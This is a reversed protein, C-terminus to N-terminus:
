LQHGSRDASDLIPGTTRAEGVKLPVRRRVPDRAWRRGSKPNNTLLAPNERAVARWCKRAAVGFDRRTRFGLRITPTSRTSVRIRARMPGFSTSWGSAGCRRGSYLLIGLGSAQSRRWRRRLQPGCDCQASSRTGPLVRQPDAGAARPASAQSSPPPRPPQNHPPHPDLPPPPTHPHHHPATPPTRPRPHPRTRARGTVLRRAHQQNAADSRSLARTSRAKEPSATPFGPGRPRLEQSAAGTGPSTM